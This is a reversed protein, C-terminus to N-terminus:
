LDAALAMSRDRQSPKPFDALANHTAVVRPMWSRTAYMRDTGPSLWYKKDPKELYSGTTCRMTDTKLKPAKKGSATM